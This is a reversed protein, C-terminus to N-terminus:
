LPVSGAPTDLRLMTVPIHFTACPVRRRAPLHRRRRRHAVHRPRARRAGDGEGRGADPGLGGVAGVDVGAGPIGSEWVCMCVYWERKIGSPTASV